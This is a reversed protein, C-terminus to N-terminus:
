PIRKLLAKHRPAAAEGGTLVSDRFREMQERIYRAAAQARKMGASLIGAAYQSWGKGDRKKRSPYERKGMIEAEKERAQRIQRDAEQM